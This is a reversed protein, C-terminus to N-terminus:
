YLGAKAFHRATYHLRDSIQNSPYGLTTMEILQQAYNHGISVHICKFTCTTNTKTVSWYM